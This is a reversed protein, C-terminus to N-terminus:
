RHVQRGPLQGLRKARRAMDAYSYSHWSKDPMRTVIEKHHFHSEARRLALDLTLPFDMMLGDM